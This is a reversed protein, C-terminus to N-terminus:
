LLSVKWETDFKASFKMWFRELHGSRVKVGLQLQVGASAKGHKFKTSYRYKDPRGGIEKSPDWEFSYMSKDQVDLDLKKGRTVEDKSVDEQACPLLLTFGDQGRLRDSTAAAVTDAPRVFFHQTTTTTKAGDASAVAPLSM